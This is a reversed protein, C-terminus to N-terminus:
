FFCFYDISTVLFILLSNNLFHINLYSIKIFYNIKLGIVSFNVIGLIM